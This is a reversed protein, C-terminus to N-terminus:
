GARGGRPADQRDRSRRYVATGAEAAGSVGSHVRAGHEARGPQGAPLELEGADHLARGNAGLRPGNGLVRGGHDGGPGCPFDPHTPAFSRERPQGHGSGDAHGKVAVYAEMGIIPKVGAKSAMQYFDIAGHLAGHDTIALAPMRPSSTVVSTTGGPLMARPLSSAVVPAPPPHAALDLQLLKLLAKTDLTPVPLRLTREHAARTERGRRGAQCRLRWVWEASLIHALTGRLSGHSLGAPALFQAQGVQEPGLVVQGASNRFTWLVNMSYGQQENAFLVEM